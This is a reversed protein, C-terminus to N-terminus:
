LDSRPVIARCVPCGLSQKLWRRCCVSHFVHGCKPLTVVLQGCRRKELCISCVDPLPKALTQDCIDPEGLSIEEPIEEAVRLAELRDFMSSGHGGGGLRENASRAALDGLVGRRRM